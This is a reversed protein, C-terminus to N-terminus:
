FAVFIQAIKRMTKVIVKYVDFGHSLNRLNKHSEWFHQVKGFVHKEINYFQILLSLRSRIIVKTIPSVLLTIPSWNSGIPSCQWIMSTFLVRIPAMWVECRSLMQGWNTRVSYTDRSTLWWCLYQLCLNYTNYACITYM